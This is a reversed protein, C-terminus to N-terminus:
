YHRVNFGQWQTGAQRGAPGGVLHSGRGWLLIYTMWERQKHFWLLCALSCHSHVLPQWYGLVLCLAGSMGLDPQKLLSTRRCNTLTGYTCSYYHFYTKILEPSYPLSMCCLDGTLILIPVNRNFPTRGEGRPWSSVGFSNGKQKAQWKWLKFYESTVIETQKLSAKFSSACSSTVALTLALLLFQLNRCASGRTVSLRTSLAYLRLASTSFICLYHSSPLSKWKLFSCHVSRSLRSM